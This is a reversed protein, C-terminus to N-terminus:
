SSFLELVIRQHRNKSSDANNALPPSSSRLARMPGCRPHSTTAELSQWFPATHVYRVPTEGAQPRCLRKQRMPELGLAERLLPSFLNSLSLGGFLRDVFQLDDIGRRQRRRWRGLGRTSATLGSALALSTRSLRGRLPVHVRNRHITKPQRFQLHRHRQTRALCPTLPLGTSRFPQSREQKSRNYDPKPAKMSLPRSRM